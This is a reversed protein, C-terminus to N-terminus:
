KGLFERGLDERCKDELDVFKCATIINRATELSNSTNGSLVLKFAAPLQQQYKQGESYSSVAIYILLILIFILGIVGPHAVAKNNNM